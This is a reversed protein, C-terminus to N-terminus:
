LMRSLANIDRIRLQKDQKEILGGEALSDIARYLSARGIGLMDSLESMSCPPTFIGNRQNELLFVALRKDASGATFTLIKKNLYVIKRSQFTLYNKLARPNSEIVKKFADGQLFLIKCASEAVILCPFPEDEAYLNAIGFMDGLEMSKLLAHETSATNGTQVQASGEILVGVRVGENVSSYAVAGAPFAVIEMTSEHFFRNLVKPNVGEFIPHAALNPFIDYVTM